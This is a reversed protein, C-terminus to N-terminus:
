ILASKWKQPFSMESNKAKSVVELFFMVRSKANRGTKNTGNAGM